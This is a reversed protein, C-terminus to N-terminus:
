PQTVARVEAANRFRANAERRVRRIVAQLEERKEDDPLRQFDPDALVSALEARIVPGTEAVLARYEEPTRQVTQGGVRLGRSPVGVFVRLRDLEALLPDPNAERIALPSVAAAVRELPTRRVEEGLVNQRAPLTRSVIPLRARLRDLPSQTERVVPDTARAIQGLAAPIPIQSALVSGAKREDQLADILTRVNQLYSQQTMLRGVAVVGASAQEGTTAEPREERQQALAAGIFLPAAVPALPRLDVWVDDVRVSFPTRGEADWQAREAPSSPAAGSVKGDRALAFGAAMLSSGVGATAITRAAQAQSSATVLSLLGVPSLGVSKAAVSSPVGTFPVNTELLYSAVQGGKQTAAQTAQEYRSAGPDVKTEAAQAVSRKASQALRTLVNSDKFTAFSADDVARAMMEATPHAMWYASRTAIEAGRAGEKVALVKAQMYLSSNLALRYFPRDAAELIGFAGDVITQLVPSSYTVPEQDLTRQVQEADLRLSLEQVFSRLGDRLGQHFTPAKRFEALGASAAERTPKTGERFGRVMARLGDRDLASVVERYESVDVKFGTAASRGVSLLYDVAAEAPQLALHRFGGWVANGVVARAPTVISGLMGAKLGTTVKERTSAERLSAVFKVLKERAIACSVGAVGGTGAM